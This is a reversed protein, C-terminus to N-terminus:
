AEDIEESIEEMLEPSVEETPVEDDYTGFGDMWANFEDITYTGHESMKKRKMSNEGEPHADDHHDDHDRLRIAATICPAVHPAPKEFKIKLSWWISLKDNHLKEGNKMMQYLQYQLDQASSMPAQTPYVHLINNAM